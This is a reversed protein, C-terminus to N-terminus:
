TNSTTNVDVEKDLEDPEEVPQTDLEALKSELEEIKKDRIEIQVQLNLIEQFFQLCQLQYKESLRQIYEQQNEM